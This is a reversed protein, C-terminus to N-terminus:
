TLGLQELSRPELEAVVVTLVNFAILRLINIENEEKTLSIEIEIEIEIEVVGFSISQTSKKNATM